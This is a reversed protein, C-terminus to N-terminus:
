LKFFVGASVDFQITRSYSGIGVSPGGSGISLGLGIGSLPAQIRAQFKVGMRSTLDYKVGGMIGAALQTQPATANSKITSSSFGILTSLYPTFNKIDINFARVIGFMVYTQSYRATTDFKGQYGNFVIKSYFTNVNIEYSVQPNRVYAASLSYIPANIIKAGPNRGALLWGVQGSVEIKREDGNSFIQSCCIKPIFLTLFFIYVSIRINM